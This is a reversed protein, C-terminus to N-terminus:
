KEPKEGSLLDEKIELNELRPPYRKIQHTGQLKTPVKYNPSRSCLFECKAGYDKDRCTNHQFQNTVQKLILGQFLVQLM